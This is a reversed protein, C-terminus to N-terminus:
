GKKAVLYFSLTGAAAPSTIKLRLLGGPIVDTFSESASGTAGSTSSSTGTVTDFHTGDLSVQLEYTATGSIGAWVVQYTGNNYASVDISDSATTGTADLAEDRVSVSCEVARKYIELAM